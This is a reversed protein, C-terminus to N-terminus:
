QSLSLCGISHSFINAFRINSSPNINVTYSSTWCSLLSLFWVAWNLATCLVQIPTRGFFIDLVCMFLHEVDSMVLFICTCILVVIVYWKVILTIYIYIDIYFVLLFQFGQTNSTFTYFHYLGQPFCDLLKSFLWIYPSGKTTWHNLIQRAICPICTWDRTPSGLNWM